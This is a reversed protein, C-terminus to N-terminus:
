YEELETKLQLINLVRSVFQARTNKHVHYIHAHKHARSIHAHEYARSILMMNGGESERTSAKETAFYTFM